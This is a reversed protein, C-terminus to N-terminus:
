EALVFGGKMTNNIFDVESKTAGAPRVRPNLFEYYANSASSLDVVKMCKFGKDSYTMEESDYIVYDLSITAIWYNAMGSAQTMTSMNTNETILDLATATPNVQIIDNTIQAINSVYSSIPVDFGMQCNFTGLSVTSVDTIDNPDSLILNCEAVGTIIDCTYYVSLTNYLLIWPELAVKGVFPLRISLRVYNGDYMRYDSYANTRISSLSITHSSSFRRSNAGNATFNAIDIKELDPVGSQATEGLYVTSTKGSTSGSFTFPFVKVMTINSAIKHLKKVINDIVDQATFVYGIIGQVSSSNTYFFNTVTATHVSDGSGDFGFVTTPAGLTFSTADTESGAKKIKTSPTIINDYYRRDVLGSNNTRTCYGQYAKISAHFSGMPDRECEIRWYNNRLATCNTVWYYKGFVNCYNVNAMNSADQDLQFEFTPNVMSSENKLTATISSYLWTASISTSNTTKGITGIKITYSM